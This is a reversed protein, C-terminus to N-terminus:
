KADPDDTTVIYEVGNEDVVETGKKEQIAQILKDKAQKALKEADATMSKM